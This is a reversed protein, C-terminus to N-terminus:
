YQYVVVVGDNATAVDLYFDYLDLYSNAPATIVVAAGATVEIPQTNNTSVTGLYVTGTNSTRADLRGYFTATKFLASGRTAVLRTPTATDSNTKILQRLATLGDAFAGSAVVVALLLLLFLKKM